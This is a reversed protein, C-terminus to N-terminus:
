TLAMQLDFPRKTRLIARCMVLLKRMCAILALKKAKGNDILRHYYTKITPNCRTAVLTPMYLVTRLRRNGQKNLHSRGRVSTGSLRHQPALGAHATLEKASREQLAVGGYALLQLTSKTGMGPITRLLGAQEVLTQDQACLQELAPEIVALQETLCRQLARESRRVVAPVGDDHERRNRSHVLLSRLRDAEKVLAALEEMVKSGPEWLPPHQSQGYALIVEADVGDTKTRRLLVQRFAKIQSPNIISVRVAPQRLLRLALRRSYIGTAEMCVQMPGVGAVQRLWQVMGRVGHGTHHFSRPRHGSVAVVVESKGVDVGVYVVSKSM